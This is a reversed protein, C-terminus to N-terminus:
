EKEGKKVENKVDKAGNSPWATPSTFFRDSM